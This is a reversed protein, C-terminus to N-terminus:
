SDLFSKSSICVLAMSMIHYEIVANKGEDDDFAELYGVVQAVPREEPVSLRIPDANQMVFFM